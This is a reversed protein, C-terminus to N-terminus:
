PASPLIRKFAIQSTPDDPLIDLFTQSSYFVRLRPFVWDGHPALENGIVDDPIIIVIISIIVIVGMTHKEPAKPVCALWMVVNCLSLLIYSRLTVQLDHDKRQVKITRRSTEESGDWFLIWLVLIFLRSMVLTPLVALYYKLSKLTIYWLPSLDDDDDNLM